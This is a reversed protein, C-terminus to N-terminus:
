EDAKGRCKKKSDEKKQDKMAGGKRFHASIAFLDRQKRPKTKAKRKGKRKSKGM